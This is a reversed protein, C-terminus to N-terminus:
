IRKKGKSWKKMKRLGLVGQGVFNPLRGSSCSRTSCRCWSWNARDWGPRTYRRSRWCRTGRRRGQKDRHGAIWLSSSCDRWRRTGFSRMIPLHGHVHEIECPSHMPEDRPISSFFQKLRNVLRICYMYIYINLKRIHIYSFIWIYIYIDNNNETSCNSLVIPLGIHINDTEGSHKSRTQWSSVILIYSYIHM